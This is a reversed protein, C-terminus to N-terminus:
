RAPRCVFTMVVVSDRFPFSPELGAGLLRSTAGRFNNKNIFFTNGTGDTCTEASEGGGEGLNGEVCTAGRPTEDLPFDGDFPSGVITLPDVRGNRIELLFPDPLNFATIRWNDAQWALGGADDYQCILTLETDASLPSAILCALAVIKKARRINM